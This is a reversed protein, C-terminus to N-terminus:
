KRCLYGEFEAKFQVRVCVLLSAFLLSKVHLDRAIDMGFRACRTQIASSGEVFGFEHRSRLRTVVGSSEFAEM